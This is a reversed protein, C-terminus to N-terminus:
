TSLVPKMEITGVIHCVCCAHVYRHVIPLYIRKIVYKCSSYSVTVTQNISWQLPMCCLCMNFYSIYVNIYVLQIHFLLLKYKYSFSATNYYKLLNNVLTFSFVLWNPVSICTIVAM